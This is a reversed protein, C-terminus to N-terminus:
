GRIRKVAAAVDNGGAQLGSAKAHKMAIGTAPGEGKAAKIAEHVPALAKVIEEVDLAAPLLAVLIATEKQLAARRAEAPQEGEDALDDAIRAFAYVAAVHPRM